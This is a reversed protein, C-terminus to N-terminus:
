KFNAITLALGTELDDWAVYATDKAQIWADGSAEELEKM